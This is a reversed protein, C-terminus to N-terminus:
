LARAMMYVGLVAIAGSLLKRFLEEPITRLVRVGWFTGVLVCVTALSMESWANLMDEGQTLLYVPVRVGDVILGIATATAVLSEKPINFSLLAASRIGGQNGVLGGFMGSLGGGIWATKRGFHMRKSIGTFGAAGAFMLLAGFCASLAQSNANSNLLAGILGGAASVIGFSAFIRKDLHDKLSVFRSATAVLHPISVVAVALKTDVRLAFLPTLLSGIGFGSIAAAAGSVTAVAITIFTFGM